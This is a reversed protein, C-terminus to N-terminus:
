QVLFHVESKQRNVANKLKANKATFWQVLFHVQQLYNVRVKKNALFSAFALERFISLRGECYIDTAEM